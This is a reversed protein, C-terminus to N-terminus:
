LDAASELRALAQARADPALKGKDVLRGLGKAVQAMSRELADSVADALVVEYGSQVAVQAIGHGMTGAGVVGIRGIATMTAPAREERQSNMPRRRSYSISSHHDLRSHSM